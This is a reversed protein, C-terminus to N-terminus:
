GKEAAGRFGSSTIRPGRAKSAPPAAPGQHKANCGSAAVAAIHEGAAVIRRLYDAM